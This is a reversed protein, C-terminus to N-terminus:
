YNFYTQCASPPHNRRAEASCHDPPLSLVVWAPVMMVFPLALALLRLRAAASYHWVVATLVVGVLAAAAFGFLMPTLWTQGDGCVWGQPSADAPATEGVDSVGCRIVMFAIHVFWAVVLGAAALMALGAAKLAM